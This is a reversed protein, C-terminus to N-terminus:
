PTWKLKSKYSRLSFGTLLPDQTSSLTERRTSQDRISVRIKRMDPFLRARKLEVTPSSRPSMQSSLDYALAEIPPVIAAAAGTQVRETKAAESAVKESPGKTADTKAREVAAPSRRARNTVDAVTMPPTMLEQQMTNKFNLEPAYVEVIPDYQILVPDTEIRFWDTDEFFPHKQFESYHRSCM